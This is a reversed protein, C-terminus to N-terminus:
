YNFRKKLGYILDNIPTMVRLKTRFGCSKLLQQVEYSTKRGDRIHTEVVIKETIELTHVSGKLVEIESGEVDIKLFDVKQIGFRLLLNDLTDTEVVITEGNYKLVM